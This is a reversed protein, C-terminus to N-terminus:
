VAPGTYQGRMYATSEGKWAYVLFLVEFVLAVVTTLLSILGALPAFALFLLSAPVAILGSLLSLGAVVTLVIRAWERGGRFHLAIYVGVAGLMIVAVISFISSGAGAYYSSIGLSSAIMGLIILPYVLVWAFFARQVTQPVPGPFPVGGLGPPILPNAQNGASGTPAGGRPPPVYQGYQAQGYQGQGYPQSYQQQPQGYQSQGHQSQGDQPASYQQQGYGYSPQGGPPTSFGSVSADSSAPNQGYPPNPASM